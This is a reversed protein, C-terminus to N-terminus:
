RTVLLWSVSPLRRRRCVQKKQMRSPTTQRGSAVRGGPRRLSCGPYNRISVELHRLDVRAHRDPTTTGRQRRQSVNEASHLSAHGSQQPRLPCM